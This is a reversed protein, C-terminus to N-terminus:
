LSNVPFSIFRFGAEENQFSIRVQQLFMNGESVDIEFPWFNCTDNLLLLFDYSILVLPSLSSYKTIIRPCNM